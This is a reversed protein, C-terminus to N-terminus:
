IKENVTKAPVYPITFYFSAGKDRESKVWITGGLLTVIKKSITLGLGTGGYERTHGTEAQRFQEFIKDHLSSDIGIGSDQVFFQLQQDVLKYGFSVGGNNTFKFANNLINGLVRSIRERDSIVVSDEESLSTVPRLYLNQNQFTPLYFQYTNTILHNICVPEKKITMEGAELKSIDLIDDVITLLQKGSDLIINIYKKRKETSLGDNTLLQSFGLIGNLPTRIEHSMNALFASKLNDSEEAKQKAIQLDNTRQHVKEELTINLRTLDQHTKILETINEFVYISGSVHEHDNYVHECSMYVSYIKGSKSEVTIQQNKQPCQLLYRHKVKLLSFWTKLPTGIVERANYGTLSVIFRNVTVIHDYENTLVLGAPMIEIIKDAVSFPSIKLLQLKEISYLLGSAFILLFFDPVYPIFIVEDLLNSAYVNVFGLAFSALGTYFIIKGQQKLLNNSTHKIFFFLLALSAVILSNHIINIILTLVQNKYEIDWYKFKNLNNEVYALEGSFQFYAALVFYVGLFFYTVHKYKNLGTFIKVSIFIGIGFGINAISAYDIVMELMNKDVLPNNIFAFSLSWVALCLFVLAFSKNLNSRIRSRISYIAFAM